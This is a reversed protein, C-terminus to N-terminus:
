PNAFMTQLKMAIGMDGEIKLKGSMFAQMANMKGTSVAHWDDAAAKLTMKPSEAQGDGSECTGDAIKLWFLGGNDGSLNFQIVANVGEAKAPIFRSAMAPFIGAVEQSTPM